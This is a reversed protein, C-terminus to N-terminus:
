DAPRPNATQFHSLDRRTIVIDPEPESTPNDEPAVDIPAEPRVYRCGFVQVLWGQLLILANVHSGKKGIKSILEREVLELKEYGVMASSLSEYEARTWLKRPPDTKVPLDTLATPM